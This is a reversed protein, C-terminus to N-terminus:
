EHGLGEEIVTPRTIGALGLHDRSGERGSSRHRPPNYPHPSALPLAPRSPDYGWRWGFRWTGGVVSINAAERLMSSTFRKRGWCRGRLYRRKPQDVAVGQVNGFSTGATGEPGFSIGTYPHTQAALASSAFLALCALVMAVGLAALASPRVSHGGRASGRRMLRRMM